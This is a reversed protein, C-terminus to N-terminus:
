RCEYGQGETKSELSSETRTKIPSKIERKCECRPVTGPPEIERYRTRAPDTSWCMILRLLASRRLSRPRSRALVLVDRTEEECPGATRRGLWPAHLRQAKRTANQRAYSLQGPHRLCAAVSRSVPTRQYVKDFPQNRHPAQSQRSCFRVGRPIASTHSSLKRPFGRVHGMGCSGTAHDRAATAARAGRRTHVPSTHTDTDSGTVADAEARTARFTDGVSASLCVRTCLCAGRVTVPALVRLVCSRHSCRVACSERFRLWTRARSNGRGPSSMNLSVDAFDYATTAGATRRDQMVGAHRRCSARTVGEQHCTLKQLRAGHAHIAIAKESANTKGGRISVFKPM